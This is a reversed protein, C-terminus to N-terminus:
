RDAMLVPDNTPADFVAFFKKADDISGKTFQAKGANVSQELTGALDKFVMGIVTMHDLEVVALADDPIQSVAEVVGKRVILGVTADRDTLKFGMSMVQDGCKEPDIRVRLGELLAEDPMAVIQDPADINIKRSYDISGDLEDAATLYFNRWNANVTKYGVQRLAEAKLNRAEHDSKQERDVRVVHSSLEAVWQWDNNDAARKAAAIVNDRGGMLEIYRRSSEIPHLPALTTPDANFWGLLGVYLERVSHSMTGYFEGMWPSNKLHEPILVKQVLDDPLDGRNMHRITQDYEYSIVDRYDRLCDAIEQRGAVVRGHSPIMFEADRTRLQSDISRFWKQPDRFESGRVSHLNPFSEGQVLEASQLVKLDPFWTVIEDIAESPAWSIEMRVGAITTDLKDDVLVNPAILSITQMIFDPGDGGNVRGTPGTELLGGLSYDLRAAIIPGDGSIQHEIVNQMFDRHAIIKVDGRDVEEQTVFAKVGAYHDTHWHSYIVAKVPKDTIKRLDALMNKGKEVDEPPDILILGDDGVIMTMNGLAYGTFQYANRGAIELVGQDMKRSHESLATNITNANETYALNKGNPYWVVGDDAGLWYKQDSRQM